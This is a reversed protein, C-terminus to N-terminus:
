LPGWILNAIAMAVLSLSLTLQAAAASVEFDKAISPLAPALAHMAFPGIATVAALLLILVFDGGARDPTNRSPQVSM